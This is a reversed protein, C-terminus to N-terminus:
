GHAHGLCCSHEANRSSCKLVEDSCSLDAYGLNTSSRNDAHGYQLIKQSRVKGFDSCLSAMSLVLKMDTDLICAPVSLSFQSHFEHPARPYLEPNIFPQIACGAVLHGPVARM